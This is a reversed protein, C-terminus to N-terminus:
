EDEDEDEEDEWDEFFEDDAPDSYDKSDESSDEYYILPLSLQPNAEFEALEEESLDSSDEKGMITDDPSDILDEEELAEYIEFSYDGEEYEEDTMEFHSQVQEDVETLNAEGLEDRCGDLISKAYEVAETQTPPKRKESM